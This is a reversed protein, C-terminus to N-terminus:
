ARLARRDHKGAFYIMAGKTVGDRPKSFAITNRRSEAARASCLSREPDFSSDSRSLAGDTRQSKDFVFASGMPGVPTV